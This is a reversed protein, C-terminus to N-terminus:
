FRCPGGKEKSYPCFRCTFSPNPIFEKEEELRAVRNNWVTRLEHMQDRDFIKQREKGLDLYVHKAWVRQVSPHEAFVALSYLSKQDDHDPYIRGTKWDIVEAGTPDDEPRVRQLVKVDLIGKYWREEGVAVPQWDRNLQITYEPYAEKKKLEDLQQQYINIENPLETTKGTLYSEMHGHLETGRAAAGSSPPTPVHDIYRYKYQAPCKEYTSLSTLSWKM